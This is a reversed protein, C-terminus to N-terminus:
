DEGRVVNSELEPADSMEGGGDHPEALEARAPIYTRLRGQKTKGEVVLCVGASRGPKM